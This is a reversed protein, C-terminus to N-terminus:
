QSECWHTTKGGRVIVKHQVVTRHELMPWKENRIMKFFMETHHKVELTDHKLGAKAQLDLLKTSGFPHDLLQFIGAKKQPSCRSSNSLYGSLAM